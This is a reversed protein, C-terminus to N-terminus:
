VPRTRLLTFNNVFMTLQRGGHKETIEIALWKNPPLTFQPLVIVNDERSKGKILHFDKYSFLPSFCVAKKRKPDKNDWVFFRISDVAYDLHSHNSISMRFFLMGTHTYIGKVQFCMRQRRDILHYIRRRDEQVRSCFNQMDKESILWDQERFTVLSDGTHRPLKPQAQPMLPQLFLSSFLVLSIHRM